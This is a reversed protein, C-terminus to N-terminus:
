DKREELSKVFESASCDACHCDTVAVNTGDGGDDVDAVIAQAHQLHDIAHMLLARWDESTEASLESLRTLELLQLGAQKVREHVRDSVSM